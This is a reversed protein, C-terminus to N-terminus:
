ALEDGLGLQTRPEAARRELVRSLAEVRHTVRARDFRDVVLEQAELGLRLRQGAGLADRGLHAAEATDDIEPPRGLRLGHTPHGRREVVPTRVAVAREGVIADREAEAPERDDVQAVGAPLRERALVSRQLQHVVALDVVVALQ